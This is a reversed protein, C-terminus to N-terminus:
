DKWLGQVAELARIANENGSHAYGRITSGDPSLLAKAIEQTTQQKGAKYLGERFGDNELTLFYIWTILNFMRLRLDMEDWKKAEMPDFLYGGFTLEPERHFVEVIADVEADTLGHPAGNRSKSVATYVAQKLRERTKM